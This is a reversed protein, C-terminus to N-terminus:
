MNMIKRIENALIEAAKTHTVATPHYDAVLGDEPKQEDFMMTSIREDGSESKYQEVAKELAGFIRQGM